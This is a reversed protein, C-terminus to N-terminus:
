DSCIVQASANSCLWSFYVWLLVQETVEIPERHICFQLCFIQLVVLIIIQKLAIVGSDFPGKASCFNYVPCKIQSILIHSCHPNSKLPFSLSFCLMNRIYNYHLFVRVIFKMRVTCVTVIPFFCFLPVFLLPLLTCLVTLHWPTTNKLHELISVLDGYESSIQSGSAM